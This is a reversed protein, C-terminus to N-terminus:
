DRLTQMVNETQYLSLESVAAADTSIAKANALTSTVEQIKEEEIEKLSYKRTNDKCILFM